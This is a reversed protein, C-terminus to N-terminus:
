GDDGGDGEPSLRALQGYLHANVVVAYFTTFLIGVCCALLGLPAVVLTMILSVLLVVLYQRIDGRVMRLVAGAQLAKRMRGTVALRITAAPLVLRLVLGFVITLLWGLAFGVVALVRPAESVGGGVMVGLTVTGGLLVLFPFGYIVTVLFLKAGQRLKGLANDWGPLCSDDGFAVMRVIELQYGLVIFLPVILFSGLLFLAGLLFKRLWGADNLLFSLARPPDMGELWPSRTRRALRGRAKEEGACELCYLRGDLDEICEACIYKGCDVCRAVPEIGPHNACEL